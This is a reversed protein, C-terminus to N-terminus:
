LPEADFPILSKSLYHNLGKIFKENKKEQTDVLYPAFRSLENFKTVYEIVTRGEQTLKLFEDSLQSRITALVFKRDFRTKFNLWALTMLDLGEKWSNWWFLAASELQHTALEQKQVKTFQMRGFVMECKQVWTDATPPGRDGSFKQMTNTPGTIAATAATAATAAAANATTEEGTGSNEANRLNYMGAMVEQEEVVGIAM